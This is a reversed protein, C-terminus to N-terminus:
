GCRKLEVANVSMRRHDWVLTETAGNTRYTFTVGFGPFFGREERTEMVSIREGGAGARDSDANVTYEASYSAMDSANRVSVMTLARDNLTLRYTVSCGEEGWLGSIHQRILSQRGVGIADGIQTVGAGVAEVEDKTDLLTAQQAAPPAFVNSLGAIFAAAALLLYVVNSLVKPRRWETWNRSRWPIVETVALSAMVFLFLLVLVLVRPMIGFDSVPINAVILWIIVGVCVTTVSMSLGFLVPSVPLQAPKAASSRRSKTARRINKRAM